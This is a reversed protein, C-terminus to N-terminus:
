FGCCNRLLFLVLLIFSSYCLGAIGIVIFIIWLLKHDLAKRRYTNNLYILLASGIFLVLLTPIQIKEMKIIDKQFSYLFYVPVVYTTFLLVVNLIIKKNM